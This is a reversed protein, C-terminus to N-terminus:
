EGGALRERQWLGTERERPCSQQWRVAQGRGGGGGYCACSVGSCSGLLLAVLLGVVSAGHLAMRGGSAWVSLRLPVVRRGFGRRAAPREGCFRARGRTGLSAARTKHPPPSRPKHRPYAAHPVRHPQLQVQHQRGHARNPSTCACAQLASTQWTPAVMLM